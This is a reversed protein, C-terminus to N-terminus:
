GDVRYLSMRGEQTVLEVRPHSLEHPDVILIHTFKAEWDQAFDPGQVGEPLDFVYRMDVAFMAPHAYTAWEPKVQLGHVHQFLTPVFADRESVLLGQVQYFRTDGRWGAGRLPLVRAGGPLTETASLLDRIDSDYSAAFREFAIGKLLLLAALVTAFVRGTRIGVGCWASGAILLAFVMVPFRIHLFAVGQLWEPVVLSLGILAALPGYLRRQFSLRPGSGAPVFLRTLAMALVAFGGISVWRVWAMGQVPPEMAPARLADWRSALGGYETHSLSGDGPNGAMLLALALVPPLFPLMAFTGAMLRRLLPGDAEIVRQLERGFVAAALAGFAFLHMLYITLALPLFLFWRLREARDELALWLSLGHIAFPLSFVFNQFGLFFPANFVLLGGAASWLSWRGHVIRSLVMVSATLNVAYFAMVGQAFRAPSGPSGLGLWILDVAANPAFGTSYGYYDALPGTGDMAAVALRAIHNPLDVLPLYLHALIPVSTCLAAFIFGLLPLPLPLGNKDPRETPASLADM